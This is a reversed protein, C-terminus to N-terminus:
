SQAMAEIMQIEEEGLLHDEEEELLHDGEEEMEEEVELEELPVIHFDQVLLGGQTPNMGQPDEEKAPLHLRTKKLPMSKYPNLLPKPAM